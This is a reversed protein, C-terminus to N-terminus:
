DLSAGVEQYSIKYIKFRKDEDVYIPIICNPCRQSFDNILANFPKEESFGPMPSQVLYKPRYYNLISWLDEITGTAPYKDGYFLSTPRSLFPRIGSRGTYRNNMTDLGYAVIDNPTTNQKIWNFINEFSEWKVKNSPAGYPYHTDTQSKIVDSIQFANLIILFTFIVYTLLKVSHSSIIKELVFGMGTLFYVVIFPMIPILFRGPPWPWVCILLFYFSLFIKLANSKNKPIFITVWPIAGLLAFFANLLLNSDSKLIEFAGNAPYFASCFFSWVFNTSVINLTSRLGFEIMWGLYDTNYGRVPNTNIDGIAGYIWFVWPIIVVAFGLLLWKTLIPKHHWIYLAGSFLLVLGVSRCLFTLSILIGLCVLHGRKVFANEAFSEMVFLSVLILFFFPIESLTNTSFYLFAPSTICVVCSFLAVYRPCHNFRVLYLFCFGLALSGIMSTALKMFYINQPFQPWCKWIAALFVPYLIPYKTQRPSDPLNILRYGNGESIAKATIVYIADDHYVGCVGPVIYNYSLILSILSVSLAIFIDKLNIKQKTCLITEDPTTKM